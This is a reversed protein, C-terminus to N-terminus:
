WESFGLLCRLNGFGLNKIFSSETLRHLKDLIDTKYVPYLGERKSQSLLNLEWM